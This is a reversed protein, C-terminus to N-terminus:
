HSLLSKNCGPGISKVSSGNRNGTKRGIVSLRKLEEVEGILSAM